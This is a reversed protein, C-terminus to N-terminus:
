PLAKRLEEAGTVMNRLAATVEPYARTKLGCDPNVWLLDAEIVTLVARLNAVIEEVTPIRPSHVDYVGPGIAKDYHERRFDELLDLDSRAHEISLVDADLASITDIIDGFASYCMHTHIQTEDRVASSVLRFAQVTWALYAAREARRLPLGERLAPEDIQIIRIGARELDAVEERLALAVAWATEARPQDDRVFSWNLMTIPGTLMGKVPKTTLSQAYTAWRVTMPHPRRVDGYLIPPRVCRSGYSQVWGHETFAFGDLQEGFYEVMDSREPEGHVLVDLGLEEQLRIVAAIQGAIFDDYAPASMAGRAFRARAQRVEATQPFSGITTTPLPPLTLEARQRPRRQAFPHPRRAEMSGLHAVQARVAPDRTRPSDRRSALAQQAATLAAGIAPRGDDLGSRLIAVEGLKQRAFALWSRLEPDLTTGTELDLDLPVHLLSCSPGILLREAPVHRALRELTQLSAALDNRWINRGDVIGAALMKDAPFGHRELLPLNAAGRVLDLGLADIPLGALTEYADAVSGYSTQILLRGTGKATALAQYARRLAALEGRGRDQVFCPEDLQIWAAGRAALAAIVEQYVALLPDLLEALPDFDGEGDRAKGLLLFSVPGLLVPRTTIGLAQAEAFEDLPKTSGWRFQQGRRFEPTLYHYNTDFWKTLDLAPVNRGDTQGGRAMAFYRDLDVTSGEWAFRPPVAGVLAITDLVHDYLSFDNSPILDIGAEQQGRWNASRITSAVRQLHAASSAGKWYGELARKLERKAGIRPYGLNITATV